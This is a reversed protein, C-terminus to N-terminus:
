HARLHTYHVAAVGRGGEDAGIISTNYNEQNDNDAIHRSDWHSLLLVRKQMEPKYSAIINKITFIKGDYTTAPATQVIVSLGFSTLTEELFVACSAHAKSGPDRPGFEVQKNILLYASADNFAPTKPTLCAENVRNDTTQKSTIGHQCM